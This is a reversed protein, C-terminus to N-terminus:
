VDIAFTTTFDPITPVAAFAGTRLVVVRTVHDCRALLARPRSVWLGTRSLNATRDPGRVPHRPAIRRPCGPARQERRRAPDRDRRRGHDGRSRAARHVVPLEADKSERIFSLWSRDGRTRRTRRVATRLSLSEFVGAVVLVGIAVPVSTLEHPRRLKEEAEVLAFLGGASFLVVAVVFAWFYRERGYGFPHSKTPEQRGRHRGYFLLGQDATDVVSHIGEALLSVAGTLAFGVFKTLAIAVNAVLAVLIARGSGGTEDDSM